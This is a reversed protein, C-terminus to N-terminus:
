MGDIERTVAEIAAGHAPSWDTARLEDLTARAADVDGGRAEARALELWGDIELPRTRIVQRCQIVADALRELRTWEAALRRHGEPEHPAYEALGTLAREAGDADGRRRLLAALRVYVDPQAPVHLLSDALAAAVAPEDKQLECARVVEAYLMVDEPTLRLAVRLHRLAAAPERRGLHIAALARRIVAADLGSAAAAEEYRATWAALDPIARLVAELSGLARRKQRSAGGWVVVAASAADVAEDFQGLGAHARALGVYMLSLRGDGNSRRQGRIRREYDPIALDWLAAARGFYGSDLCIRALSNGVDPDLCGRPALSEFHARTVDVLAKGDADRGAGHLARVNAIRYQLVDPRETVLREAHPLSDQWREEHHLWTVLSWRGEEELADGADADLLTQIAESRLRLGSWLYAASHQLIGASRPNDAIVRRATAAFDDAKEKWFDHGGRNGYLARGHSQQTRLDRDLERLVVSLLRPELAGLGGKRALETRWRAMRHSYTSWGDSRRRRLWAPEDEIREVCLTLAARAGAVTHLTDAVTLVARAQRPGFRPLIEPLLTRSFRVLDGDVGDIPAVGRAPQHASGHLRCYIDLVETLHDPAHEALACEILDRAAVYLEAGSGLSVMGGAHLCAAYLGYLRRAYWEQQAGPPQREREALLLAEGVGFHQMAEHWGTLLDVIDNVSAPLAGGRAARYADLAAALGDIAADKRDYGWETLHLHRAIRVRDMTGKAEADHLERLQALQEDALSAHPIQGLSALYGAMLLREGPLWTGKRARKMHELSRAVHPGPQDLVEAARREVQAMLLSLSRRDTDTEASAMRAELRTRIEDCTAEEHVEQVLAGAAQLFPYVAQPTHGIVGDALSALLRFDKVQRYLGRVASLRSAPDSSKRLLVRIVRLIEDDMTAPAEGARGSGTVRASERNVRSVLDYETVVCYRRELASQRRTEDGLVLYWDALTVYQPEDLEGLGAVEEFLPAAEDLRELEALLYGLAIRWRSEVRAPVIWSRLTTELEAPRDLVVLLRFMAWRWDLADEDKELRERLLALVREALGDPAGDQVAAYSLARVSRERLVWRLGGGADDEGAASSLLMERAEGEVAAPAEALEALFAIREIEYWPRLTDDGAASEKAFREALGRRAAATAEKQKARLAARPLKEREAPPGLLADIRMALLRDALWRVTSALSSKRVSQSASEAAGPAPAPARRPVLALIEDELAPTWPLQTLREHLMAAHWAVDGAAEQEQTDAALAERLLDVAEASEAHADLLSLAPGFLARRQARRREARWRAIVRDTVGRWVAADVSKRDWPLWSVVYALRTPSMNEIVGDAALDQRLWALLKRHAPSREFRYHTVVRTVVSADAKEDFALTRAVEAVRRSWKVDVTGSYWRGDWDDGLATAVAAALRARAEPDEGADAAATLQEDIFADCETVRGQALLAGLKVQWAAQDTPQAAIWREAVRLLEEFRMANWLVAAIQRYAYGGQYAQRLAASSEIQALVELAGDVDGSQTLVNLLQQATQVDRPNQALLERYVAVAADRRGAALLLGARQRTWVANWWQALPDDDNGEAAGAHELLALLTLREEAQFSQTLQFLASALERTATRERVRLAQAMRQVHTIFREGRRSQAYLAAAIWDAGPKGPVLARAQEWAAWAEDWRQYTVHDAAIAFQDAFTARGEHAAQRADRLAVNSAGLFIVDRRAALAADLAAALAAADMERVDLTRRLTERGEADLTVEETAWWLGGAQVFGSRRQSSTRKGRLMGDTRVVLHKKTDITLITANEAAWPPTLRVTVLPGDRSTIAADWQAYAAVFDMTGRGALPAWDDGDDATGPRRRGLLSGAHQAGFDEGDYWTDLPERGLYAVRVFWRGGGVLGRGTRQPLDEFPGAGASKERLTIELGGDFDAALAVKARAATLAALVDADWDPAADSSGSPVGAPLIQPFRQYLIDPGSPRYWQESRGPFSTHSAFGAYRGNAGPGRFFERGEAQKAAVRKEMMELGTVPTAAGPLPPDRPERSDPPIGEIACDTENGDPWTESGGIGVVSNAREQARDGGARGGMSLRPGSAGGLSQMFFAGGGGGSGGIGYAYGGLPLGRGLDALEALMRRRLGLRWSRAKIVQERRAAAGALAAADAFFREGDRMRVRRAVGYRERDADNELVLFSTYPTMIGFRESFAVIEDRVAPTRGQALLADLHKRAWLRPLFSNGTESGAITVDASFQVPRGDLTGSVTVKGRQEAGGEPLYRGLVIQQTGAALRPLREPYVRATRLGEFSVRLDKIPPRAIESVLAYATAAPDGRTTRVSGGGLAGIADLVGQEYAAGVGVAHFAAGAPIRLRAISQALAVPDADGTTGIGDGLYVIVTGVAARAAAAELAARVDSWGLSFRRDLAALAAAANEDGAALPEAVPWRITADCAMLRFRDRPGLLALMSELFARQERRQVPGMSGSTDAIFIVDLPDGEPVLERQWGSAEADPPALLLMFYGDAGRRHPVVTLPRTREVDFVVEFDREPVYEDASFELTADHATRTVRVDHTPSAAATIPTTSHNAVRLDLRRLSHTRLLESRLAYRYRLRSGELPLVQTYRLRIRKEGRAPIPFISAKFLNGGSWELLGPDKRRRKIDEYIQRARQREVIDAEVLEGHTWMGFGSISAGAPLPFSFVGELVDDTANVFSEEVTTVAIQDRIVVDVKHYGVSLPVNRGDVNAVLSGLWEDTTSGRYGTLWRPPERLTTTAGDQTRFVVADAVSAEFDGPGTVRIPRGVAGSVEADGRVLRVAGREDLAALGGAGLVLSGGGALRIEAANAGRPLTRLRDGPLLVTRPRLPSWRTRGAPQVLAAGQLDTVVGVRGDDALGSAASRGTAVLATALTLLLTLTRAPM